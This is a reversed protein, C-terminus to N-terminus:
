GTPSDETLKNGDKQDLRNLALLLETVRKNNKKLRKSMYDRKTKTKAGDKQKKYKTAAVMLTQLEAVIVEKALSM